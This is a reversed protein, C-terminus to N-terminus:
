SNALIGKRLEAMAARAHRAAKQSGAPEMEELAWTLYQMAADAKASRRLTPASQTTRMPRFADAIDIDFPVAQAQKQNDEV